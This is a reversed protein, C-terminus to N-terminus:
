PNYVVLATFYRDTLKFQIELVPCCKKSLSELVENLKQEFDKSQTSYVLKVQKM